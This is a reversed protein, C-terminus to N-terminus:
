LYWSRYWHQLGSYGLIKDSITRLFWGGFRVLIVLNKDAGDDNSEDILLSFPQNTCMKSIPETVELANANKIMMTTKMRGCGFKKAIESDPFMAKVLKTFHDGVIFPLNHEAVFKKAIESDPFMAKVLKTFHDGVTFPLNHEAVFHAFMTEALVQHALDTKISTFFSNIKANSSRSNTLEM